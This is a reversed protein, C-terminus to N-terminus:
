GKSWQRYLDRLTIQLGAAGANVLTQVQLYRGEDVNVGVLLSVMGACVHGLTFRGQADTEANLKLPQGEGWGYIIANAIPNGRSDLVRGSVSLNAPPLTV